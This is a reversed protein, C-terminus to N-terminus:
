RLDSDSDFPRVTQQDLTEQSGAMRYVRDM